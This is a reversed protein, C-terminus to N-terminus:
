YNCGESGAKTIVMSINEGSLSGRNPPLSPIRRYKAPLGGAVGSAWSTISNFPERRSANIGESGPHSRKPRDLRWPTRELTRSGAWGEKRLLDRGGSVDGWLQREGKGGWEARAKRVRKGWVGCLKVFVYTTGGCATTSLGKIRLIAPNM